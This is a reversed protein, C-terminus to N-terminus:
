AAADLIKRSIDLTVDGNEGLHTMGHDELQKVLATIGEAGIEYASLRTPVGLNEFFQETKRIVADIREDETGETLNWVRAAYQLLRARKETRRVKLLAPFVMALTRAHDIHYKATIEHGIMHTTWDQPVGAGILGNLALTAVWMLNSRLDYDDAAGSGKAPNSSHVGPHKIRLRDAVDHATVLRNQPMDLTEIGTLATDRGHRDALDGIPKGAAKRSLALLSSNLDGAPINVAITPQAKAAAVPQDQAHAPMGSVLLGAFALSTGSMLGCLATTYTRGRRVPQRAKEFNM